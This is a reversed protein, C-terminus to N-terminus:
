PKFGSRPGRNWRASVERVRAFDVEGAEVDGMDPHRFVVRHSEATLGPVTCPTLYPGNGSELRSGDLFVQAGFPETVFNVDVTAPPAPRLLWLSATLLGASLLCGVALMAFRRGTRRAYSAIEQVTRALFSPKSRRALVRQLDDLMQRADAYRTDRSPDAARLVVQNLAVLRPDNLLTEGNPVLSPFRDVFNGSYMEYIVLGAGYVDAQADMKLDKPMYKLTGALSISGEAETVLGFDALKLVGDLFVCNEPKVDRHVLGQEHLHALAALLQQAYELCREVSLRGARLRSGLTAPKYDERRSAAEGRLDDALDMTYYLYEPTKGVHRIVLLNPHRVSRNRELRSLAQIEKIAPGAAGSTQLPVLKVAALSGTTRNEALWVQGFGGKGIRRILLLDPIADPPPADAPLTATTSLPPNDM